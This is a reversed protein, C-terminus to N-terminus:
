ESKGAATKKTQLLKYIQYGDSPRGAYPGMWKPYIVPLITGAFLWFNFYMFGKTFNQLGWHSLHNLTTMSLIALILTVAPGGAIFLLKHLRPREGKSEPLACFGYFAWKIHFAMTSIRFNEKNNEDIPGLFISVHEKSAIRNGLAHGVEHFLVSLPAGVLYVLIFSIM